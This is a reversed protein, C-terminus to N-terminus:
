GGKSSTQKLGGSGTPTQTQFQGVAKDSTPATTRNGGHAGHLLDEPNAVMAALNSNVACGYNPHTANLFNSESNSSWDPCHPVSATTRTIVVRATGAAVYGQSVPVEGGVLLGYKAAANEVAVRTAPSALPDDIAVRDGYRLEMAEFWGALREAEGRALGTSGTALDLTYQNREVVPQHVSDLSRNTSMGGCGSLAVALGLAIAARTVRRKRPAAITTDPSM